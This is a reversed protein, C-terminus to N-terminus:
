QNSSHCKWFYECYTSTLYTAATVKDALDSPLINTGSIAAFSTTCQWVSPSEFTVGVLSGCEEFACVGIATVSAPITIETLAGCNGFAWNGISTISESIRISKLNSCGYFASDGIGIVPKGEYTTPLIIDTDTAAGIGYVEYAAGDNVLAYALGKTAVLVPVSKSESAGCACTRKKTGEKELTPTTTTEWKGFTHASKPIAKSESEECVACIRQQTGDSVCTADTVTKWEGWEHECASDCSALLLAALLAVLVFFSCSVTRFIKEKM